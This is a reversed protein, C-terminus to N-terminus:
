TLCGPSGHHRRVVVAGTALQAGRQRAQHHAQGPSDGRRPRTTKQLARQRAAQAPPPVGRDTAIRRVYEPRERRPLGPTLFKFQPSSYLEIRRKRRPWIECVVDAFNTSTYESRAWECNASGGSPGAPETCARRAALPGGRHHTFSGPSVFGRAQRPKADTPVPAEGRSRGAPETQELQASGLIAGAIIARNHSKRWLQALEDPNRAMTDGASRRSDM